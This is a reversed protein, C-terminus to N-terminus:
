YVNNDGMNIIWSRYDYFLNNTNNDNFVKGSFYTIPYQNKFGFNQFIMHEATGVQAWVTIKEKKYYNAYELVKNILTISDESDKFYFDVVNIQEHYEKCILYSQVDTSNSIIVFNKYKNTPNESYRWRLYKKNKRLFIKRSKIECFKYDLLFRDDELVNTNTPINLINHREIEISLTPIEYIVRRGFNKEFIPNSLYNPFGIVGIYGQSEMYNYLRNVLEFVIGKGQYKPSVMLNMSIGIRKIQGNIVVETPSAATNGIIEGEDNIAVCMLLENIPNELYRWSVIEKNINGTFCQQYLKCFEETLKELESLSLIKYKM